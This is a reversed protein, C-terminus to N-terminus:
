YLLISTYDTAAKQMLTHIHTGDISKEIYKAPLADFDANYVEEVVCLNM